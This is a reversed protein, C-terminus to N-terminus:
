RVEGPLLPRLVLSCLSGDPARLYVGGVIGAEFGTVGIAEAEGPALVRTRLQLTDADAPLAFDALTLAPWPWTRVQVGQAGSADNLVARYAAPKYSVSALSGGRDFDGLLDALEQFAKRALTDPGPEGDMGLAVVAVRRDAGDAHIEFVATPADAVMPNPYEARAAGLGGKTLAFLLLDQVRPESLAATRLPSGTLVGDASPEVSTSTRVFVVRGDGYLTFYPVHAAMWEIPVFGGGNDFRMVIENAGTPHVIGTPTAPPMPTSSPAATSATVTPAATGSGTAGCAALLIAMALVTALPLAPAHFRAFRPMGTSM